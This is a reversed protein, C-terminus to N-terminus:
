GGLAEGVRDYVALLAGKKVEGAPTDPFVLPFTTLIHAFDDRSLGYLHAILADLEDRLQQRGVPDTTPRLTHPTPHLTHPSPSGPPLPAQWPTPMVAEWLDAFAPTTCTLAAARSVIPDFYPSVATLRPMPLQTMIGLTVHFNVKFRAVWDVVFSNILATLCLTIPLEPTVGVWLTHGAFTYPPLITAICTRENVAGSVERFAFRYTKFWDNARTRALKNEGDQQRIWFRPQAFFPNFQQIMKGEYLVFGSGSQNFLDRNGAMDFERSFQPNWVDEIDEGLLPFKKYLREALSYDQQTQFEMVELNEPSFKPLSEKRMYLLNNRDNLFAPLDNPAIAERPNIRFTSWFGDSYTGKVAGLLSFKFAHHVANFFWRENSFNFLYDICGENLLMERLQKTGADAYIGSPVVYGLRGTETLLTYARETFLKHTATDGRGQRTYDPSAQFYSATAAIRTQQEEWGAEIRPDLANLQKIRAEARSRTLKSEIDADFQAYYERLDPKVIEWPPNGVVITFGAAAGLSRGAEDVFLEPFGVAWHFPRIQEEWDAVTAAFHVALPENLQGNLRETLAAVQALLADHGNPQAVLQQRLRRLEALEAAMEDYRPDAPGAGILGNGVKVNQNLILPLRQERGRQDAMARMILNVTAIEAAQPDLDLGYIHRELILRPYDALRQLAGKYSALQIELEFPTTIGAAVLEELRAQRERELRRMERRYFDALVEYAYILFSGSGCAPDILRLDAVAEWTKPQADPLPEGSSRGNQTGYLYRGLSNDVMYRVIVQPTYYSGQKKRTELNDRTEIGDGDLALAKGLYQEYTNGMIDPTMARFRAEYLKEILGQLVGDSLSAEDAVDLAFLASNHLRDFNRYLHRLQENFALAYPNTRSLELLNWLTGAPAILHDEAYRVVVLRDLLRQVVGRLRPLNVHGAEDFAWWNKLPRQVIDQALKLRWENIFNLYDNDVDARARQNSLRELSGNQINHWALQWVYEFDAELYGDPNEISFVLWDRRANFLRFREFNTLIAWSGNNAFAYNIAQQEEKTRDTAMGPLMMQGPTLVGSLTTRSLEGIVGFRKAEVYIYENAAYEARIDPRGVTTHVEQRFESGRTPWGLAEFLPTVFKNIVDTESMRAFYGKEERRLRRYESILGQITQRAHEKQIQM